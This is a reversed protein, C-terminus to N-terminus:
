RFSVNQLDTRKIYMRTCRKLTQEAAFIFRMPVGSKKGAKVEPYEISTIATNFHFTIGYKESFYAPLKEM